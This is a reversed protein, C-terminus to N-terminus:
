GGGVPLPRALHFHGTEALALDGALDDISPNAGVDNAFFRQLVGQGVEIPLGHGGLPELRDGRRVDLDHVEGRPCRQHELGRHLEAGGDLKGVEPSQAHGCGIGLDRVLLDVLLELAQPHAPQPLSRERGGRRSRTESRDAL